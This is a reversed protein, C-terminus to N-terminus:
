NPRIAAHVAIADRQTVLVIEELVLACTTDLADPASVAPDHVHHLRLHPKKHPLLLALGVIHPISQERCRAGGSCWISATGLLRPRRSEHEWEHVPLRRQSSSPAGGGLLPHTPGRVQVRKTQQAASAPRCPQGRPIKMRVETALSM